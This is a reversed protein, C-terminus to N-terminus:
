EVEKELRRMITVIHDALEYRLLDLDATKMDTLEFLAVGKKAAYLADWSRNMTAEDRSKRNAYSSDLLQRLLTIYRIDDIAERLGEYALTDVQGNQTPYALIPNRYIGTSIRENWCDASSPYAPIFVGDFNAQYLILGSNRRLLDPNDPGASAFNSSIIRGRAAHWKETVTDSASNPIAHFLEKCPVFMAEDSTGTTMVKLGAGFFRKQVDAANRGGAEGIGYFYLSDHGSLKKFLGAIAKARGLAEGSAASEAEMDPLLAMLSGDDPFAAAVTYNLDFGLEKRISIDRGAVASDATGSIVVGNVGHKKQNELEARFFREGNSPDLALYRSLDAGGALYVRYPLSRDYSTMPDPLSFPYVRLSVKFKAAESGGTKVKCVATYLGPKADGPVTFTWYLQTGRGPTMKSIPQLTDADRVEERCYNFKGGATGNVDRYGNGVRLYNKHAITDAVVLKEDHVLLDPVLVQNANAYPSNWSSQYWHKVLRMDVISSPLTAGKENKFNGLEFTVNEMDEFPYIMFSMPETEGKAAAVRMVDSFIADRPFVDPTRMDRSLAKVQMLAFPANKLSSNNMYPEAELLKLATVGLNTADTMTKITNQKSNKVTILRKQVMEIFPAMQKMKLNKSAVEISDRMKMLGGEDTQVKLLEPDTLARDWIQISAVAGQFKGFKDLRLPLPKLDANLLVRVLEGDMYLKAERRDVSYTFAVTKWKGAPLDVPSTIKFSGAGFSFSNGDLIMGLGTDTGAAAPSDLRIAFAISLEGPNKFLAADSGLDFTCVSDSTGDFKLAKSGFPGNEIVAGAGTRIVANKSWGKIVGNQPAAIGFNIAPDADTKWQGCVVPSLGAFLAACLTGIMIIRKM